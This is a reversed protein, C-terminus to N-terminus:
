RPPYSKTTWEMTKPNYVSVIYQSAIEEPVPPPPYVDPPVETGGQPLPLENDPREGGPMPGGGPHGPYIPGGGVHPPRQGWIYPPREWEPRGYGPDVPSWGPRGYGPDVPPAYGPHIPGGGPYLDANYIEGVIVIRTM